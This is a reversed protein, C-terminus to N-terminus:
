HASVNEKEKQKEAEKIWRLITTHNIGTVKELQRSSVGKKYAEVLQPLLEEKKRQYNAVDQEKTFIADQIGQKWENITKQTSKLLAQVHHAMAM